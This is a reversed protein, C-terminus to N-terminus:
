QLRACPAHSLKHKTVTLSSYQTHAQTRPTRRPHCIRLIISRSTATRVAARTCAVHAHHRAPSCTIWIHACKKIETCVRATVSFCIVCVSLARVGWPLLAMSDYLVPALRSECPCFVSSSPVMLNLPSCSFTPLLRSSISFSSPSHPTCVLCLPGELCVPKISAIM